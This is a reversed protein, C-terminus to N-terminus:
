FMWVMGDKIAQEAPVKIGITKGHCTADIGLYYWSSIPDITFTEVPVNCRRCHPTVLPPRGGPRVILSDPEMGQIPQPPAKNLILTM